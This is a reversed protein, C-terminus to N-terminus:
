SFLYKYTNRHILRVLEYIEEPNNEEKDLLNLLKEMEPIIFDFFKRDKMKGAKHKKVKELLSQYNETASRLKFDFYAGREIQGAIYMLSLLHTAYLIDWAMRKDKSLLLDNEERLERRFSDLLFHLKELKEALNRALNKQYSHVAKQRIYHWYATIKLYNDKGNQRNYLELGTHYQEALALHDDLQVSTEAPIIGATFYLYNEVAALANIDTKQAKYFLMEAETQRLSKGQAQLGTYLILFGIVIINKM